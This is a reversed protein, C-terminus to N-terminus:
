KEEKLIYKLAKFLADCLELEKFEKTPLGIIPISVFWKKNFCLITDIRDELMEM